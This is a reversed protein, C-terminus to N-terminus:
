LTYNIKLIKIKYYCVKLNNIKVHNLIKFIILVNFKIKIKQTYYLNCKKKIVFQFIFNIILFFSWIYVFM